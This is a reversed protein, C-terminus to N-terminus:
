IHILSLYIGTFPLILALLWLYKQKKTNQSRILLGMVLFSILFRYYVVLNPTIKYLEQAIMGLSDYYKILNWNTVYLLTQVEVINLFIISFYGILNKTKQSSYFNFEKIKLSINQTLNM